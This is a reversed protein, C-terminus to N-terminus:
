DMFSSKRKQREGPTLKDQRRSKDQVELAASRKVARGEIPVYGEMTHQLYGLNNLYKVNATVAKELYSSVGDRSSNIGSKPPPAGLSFLFDQVTFLPHKAGVTELQEKAQQAWDDWPLSSCSIGLRAFVLEWFRQTPMGIVIDKYAGHREHSAAFIKDIIIKSITATDAIMMWQDHDSVPYVGMSVVGAVLRWLYDDINAISNSCASGIIRGPKVAAIRNQSAPLRDMINRIVVDAVHKTQVYGTAAEVGEVLDEQLYDTHDALSVGGSVFVFKAHVPSEMAAELLEMTSVVNISRLSDYGLNWNVSAGNHIIANINGKDARGCVRAWQSESLGIHHEQLDGIWVELKKLYKPSWWGALEAAERLRSLGHETTKARVHVVVSRITPNDLLQRVIEAGLYGSGGTVLVNCREKRSRAARPIKLLEQIPKELSAMISKVERVVSWTPQLSEDSTGDILRATAEITSQSDGLLRAHYKVQFEQEVRKVLKIIGISDGGLHYFGSDMGVTNLPMNLVDAWIKQLKEETKTQPARQSRSSAGSFALSSLEETTLTYVSKRLAQRDLKTSAKMIPLHHCLLFVSPIMYRPLASHLSNVVAKLKMKLDEDMSFFLDAMTPTRDAYSDLTFFLALQASSGDRQLLDAAVQAGDGLQVRLHHEVEGLEVRMGRIKVQTDKRRSFEITGDANYSCLDGSKFLRGWHESPSPAWDADAARQVAKATKDPDDLYERLVTPGQIVVEGVTGVPALKTRDEPNVIWCFGGIPRGITLPSDDPSTYEHITSVVCTEAPGWGNFLRSVHGFWTQVLDQSVAEGAWFLVDVLPVDSPQLTRTFSPTLYLTTVNFENIFGAINNTRDHESPMCITAGAVLAGLTEGISFDFVYAAFQLINVGACLGTRTAIDTLATCAARHEMVLGKPTGTSGSTFLVYVVDSPSPTAKRLANTSAPSLSRMVEPTITVVTGVLSSCLEEHQSSAIAIKARSQRTVQQLREFPYSPEIPVWAGGAKNIAVISVIYWISKEFCVLVLDHRQVLGTTILHSALTNSLDDLQKYSLEGERSRVALTEPQAAAQRSFLETFATDMVTLIRNNQQRAFEIDWHSTASLAGLTKPNDALEERALSLIMHELQHLLARAQHEKVVYADSTVHLLVNSDSISAQMVLPFTFYNDLASVGDKEELAEVHLITGNNSKSEQFGVMKQFPQVVLLSTLECADKAASSVRAINQLGYQEHPIMDTAQRQVQQLFEGVQQEPRLQIRVPVTCVVPGPMDSIGHVDAQRGSVSTGFCIDDTECYIALVYAWAARVLTALTVGGTSPRAPPTFSHSLNEGAPVQSDAPSPPFIARQAEDLQSSWYDFTATEDATQLHKIFGDFPKLKPLTNDQRYVSNLTGMILRMTWGDYAAHHAVLFFHRSGDENEILAWRNLRSGYTMEINKARRTYECVDVGTPSEWLTDTSIHVQVALDAAQIIRTRLSACLQVTKNWASVFRDTSVSDDLRYMWKAIYSRPKHVSMAMLGEQLPTVPFANELTPQKEDALQGGTETSIIKLVEEEVAQRTHSSLLEFPKVDQQEIEGQVRKAKSAVAHLRPDHFIDKVVVEIGAERAKAVLQIAIISDGGISLFSDDRGISEPQVGLLTAWLAQMREEMATRPPRKVDNVLAYDSVAKQSLQTTLTRLIKRDVKTSTNVPMQHCPIFLSPVMYSPLTMKLDGALHALSDQLEASMPMMIDDVTLLTRQTLEDSFCLYAVLTMTEPGTTKLSVAEAVVRRAKPMLKQIQAEVEGLEVRLGRIKVQTDRRSCFEVTKDNRFKALDGTRYFRNWGRMQRNPAWAPAPQVFSTHNQKIDGLYRRLLTPGQVVLEGVCGIPCLKDPNDPRVIWCYGGVPRGLTTPSDDKSRWQHLTSFVCTEAPGYGNFLCVKDVWMAVVVKDPAEGALIVLELSPFDEPRLGRAFAPTLIAWTVSERRVFDALGTLREEDSPVCVCGGAILTCVIEGISLDFVYSSFQLMRVRPSIGLRRGIAIQSACVSGHEMILGKPAGTSGSTFLVYVPDEPRINREPNTNSYQAVLENDLGQSVEVVTKVLGRCLKAHRQSSLVLRAETQAVIADRRGQPHSPDLPSFAAGAKIIALIAVIYWISKEFCVHVIDDVKIDHKAVLYRALRNAAGNLEGYNMSGDWACVAQAQPAFLARAEFLEHVCTGM